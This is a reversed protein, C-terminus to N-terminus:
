MNDYFIYASIYSLIMEQAVAPINLASRTSPSDAGFSTSTQRSGPKNQSSGGGSCQLTTNYYTISGNGGIALTDYKISHWIFPLHVFLM